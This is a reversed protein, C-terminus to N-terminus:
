LVKEGNYIIKLLKIVSCFVEILFFILVVGGTAAKSIDYFDVLTILVPGKLAIM